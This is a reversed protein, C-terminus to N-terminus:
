PSSAGASGVDLPRMPRVEVSGYKASPIGAALQIAENLDKAKLMFFGALMEKTEAFPGDTLLMQGDRVRITMATDVPHLPGAAISHGSEHLRLGYEACVNDPCADWNEQDLYILCLYNM